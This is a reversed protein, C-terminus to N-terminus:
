TALFAAYLIGKYGAIAPAAVVPGTSPISEGASWGGGSVYKFWIRGDAGTVAYHLADNRMGLAPSGVALWSRDLNVHTNWGGNAHSQLYPNGDTGTLGMHLTNGQNVLAPATITSLAPHKSFAGWTTGLRSFWIGRDMGTIACVLAGDQVGLAPGYPTTGPLQVPNTWNTGDGTSAVYVLNDSNHHALYLRGGHVALAPTDDTGWSSVQTYPSWSNGDWRCVYVGDDLGRVALYLRDGFVALAPASVGTGGLPQTPLSWSVGGHSKVVVDPVVTVSTRAYLHHEGEGTHQEAGFTWMHEQYPKGKIKDLAARDLLFTRNEILDDALWNLIALVLGAINGAMAAYAQLAELNTGVPWGSLADAGEKLQQLIARLMTLFESPPGNDEEWCEIDFALVKSVSGHYVVTNPDFRHTEGNNIGTYTRTVMKRRVGEDAAAGTAWFIEDDSWENSGRKVYFRDFSLRAVVPAADPAAREAGSATVVTAGFGYSAAGQLFEESESRGEEDVVPPVDLDHVNVNPQAAVEGAVAALDRWLDELEYGRDITREALAAPFVTARTSAAETYVRGFDRVEEDSFLERLPDVLRAELATPELGADLRAAAHLVAGLLLNMCPPPPRRGEARKSVSEGRLQARLRDLRDVRSVRFESSM